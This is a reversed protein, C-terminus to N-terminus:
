FGIHQMQSVPIKKTIQHMKGDRGLYEEHMTAMKGKGNYVVSEENFSEHARAPAVDTMASRSQENLKQKSQAISADLRKLIDDFKVNAHHRVELVHKKQAILRRLHKIEEARPNQVEQGTYVWGVAGNARNAVKVWNGHEFINIYNTQNQQDIVGIRQSNENPAQYVVFGQAFATGAVTLAAVVALIKKM